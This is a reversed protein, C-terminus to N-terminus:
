GEAYIAFSRGEVLDVLRDDGLRCRDETPKLGGRVGYATRRLRTGRGGQPADITVPLSTPARNAVLLARGSGDPRETWVASLWEPASSSVMRVRRGGGLVSALASAAGEPLALDGRLYVVGWGGSLAAAALAVTDVTELASGAYRREDPSEDFVTLLGDCAARATRAGIEDPALALDRRPLTLHQVLRGRAALIAEAREDFGPGRWAGESGAISVGRPLAAAVSRACRLWADEGPPTGRTEPGAHNVWCVREGGELARCAAVLAVVREACRDEDAFHSPEGGGLSLTVPCATARTARLWREIHRVTVPGPASGSEGMDSWAVELRLGAWNAATDEASPDEGRAVNRGLGRVDPPQLDESVRCSVSSPPLAARASSGAVRPARFEAEGGAAVVLCLTVRATGGPTSTRVELTRPTSVTCPESAASGIRQGSSDYFHLSLWAGPGRTAGCVASARLLDGVAWERAALQQWVMGVAQEARLAAGEGLSAATLGQAVWPSGPQGVTVLAPDALTCERWPDALCAGPATAGFLLVLLFWLRRVNSVGKARRGSAARTVGCIRVGGPRASNVGGAYGCLALPPPLM